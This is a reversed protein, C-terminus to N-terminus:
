KPTIKRQVDLAKLDSIMKCRRIKEGLFVRKSQLKGWLKHRRGEEEEV